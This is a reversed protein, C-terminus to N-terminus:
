GVGTFDLLVPRQALKARALAGDWDNKPWETRRSAAAREDSTSGARGRKLFGEIFSELPRGLVRSCISPPTLVAGCLRFVGISEVEHRQVVYGFLYIGRWACAVTALRPGPLVGGFNPSPACSCFAFFERVWTVKVTLM